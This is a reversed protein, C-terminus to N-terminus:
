LLRAKKLREGLFSNRVAHMQNLVTNMPIRDRAVSNSCSLGIRLVSVLCEKMKGVPSYQLNDGKMRAREENEDIDDEEEGLFLSPDIIDMVHEPLAMSVFKHINLGDEFVEDTPRKGTFMELLLIGYSYVDGRTAM